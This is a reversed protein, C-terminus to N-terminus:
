YNNKGTKDNSYGVEYSYGEETVVFKYFYTNGEVLLENGLNYKLLGGGQESKEYPWMTAPNNSGLLGQQFFEEAEISEVTYTLYYETGVKSGITDKNYLYFNTAGDMDVTYNIDSVKVKEKAFVPSVFCTAFVFTALMCSLVRKVFQKKM